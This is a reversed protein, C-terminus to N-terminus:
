SPSAASDARDIAGVCTTAFSGAGLGFLLKLNKSVQEDLQAGFAALSAPDVTTATSYGTFSTTLGGFALPLLPQAIGALAALVFGFAGLAIEGWTFFRL